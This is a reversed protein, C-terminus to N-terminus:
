AILVLPVEEIDFRLHLRGWEGPITVIKSIRHTGKDFANLVLYAVTKGIRTGLIGQYEPTDYVWEATVTSPWSLRHEPHYLEKIVFPRTECNLVNVVYVHKLTEIANDVQYVAKSIESIPPNPSQYIRQIDELFIVGPGTRGMWKDEKREEGPATTMPKSLHYGHYNKERAVHDKENPLGQEIADMLVEEIMDTDNPKIQWGGTQLDSFTLNSKLIPCRRAWHNDIWRQCKVGTEQFDTYKWQARTM